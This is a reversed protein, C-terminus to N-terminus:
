QELIIEIEKTMEEIRMTDFNTTDLYITRCNILEMKYNHKKLYIGFEIENYNAEKHGPHRDPSLDRDRCRKCLELFDTQCIIQLAKYNYKELLHSFYPTSYENDFNGEVIFPRKTQLLKEICFMQLKVSSLGYQRNRDSGTVIVNDFLIEKIDDKNICPLCYQTRGNM